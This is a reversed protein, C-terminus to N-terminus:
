AVAGYIVGLWDPREVLIGYWYNNSSFGVKGYPNQRDAIEKGPMKTIIEFKGKAGTSQFGYHLRITQWINQLSTSSNIISNRAIVPCFNAVQGLM